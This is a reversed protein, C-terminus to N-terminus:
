SVIRRENYQLEPEYAFNGEAVEPAEEFEAADPIRLTVTEVQQLFSKVSRQIRGSEPVNKQVYGNPPASLNARAELVSDRRVKLAEFVSNAEFRDVRRALDAYKKSVREASLHDSILTFYEFAHLLSWLSERLSKGISLDGSHEYLSAAASYLKLADPSNGLTDICSAACSSSMAARIFSSRGLCRTADEIYSLAASSFDHSDELRVANFWSNREDTFSDMWTKQKLANFSVFVAAVL